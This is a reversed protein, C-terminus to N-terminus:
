LFATVQFPRRGEQTGPTAPTCGPATTPASLWVLSTPVLMLGSVLLWSGPLHGGKGTMRALM